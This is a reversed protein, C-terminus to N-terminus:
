RPYNNLKISSKEQIWNKFHQDYIEINGQPFIRLRWGVNNGGKSSLENPNIIEVSIKHGNRYTLAAILYM